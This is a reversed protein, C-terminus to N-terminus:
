CRDIDSDMWGDIWGVLCIVLESKDDLQNTWNGLNKKTKVRKEQEKTVDMYTYM